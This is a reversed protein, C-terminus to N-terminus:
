RSRPFPIVQTRTQMSLRTVPRRPTMIRTTISSIKRKIAHQTRAAVSPQLSVTMKTEKTRMEKRTRRRHGCRDAHCAAPLTRVVCVILRPKQQFEASSMEVDGDDDVINDFSDDFIREAAQM